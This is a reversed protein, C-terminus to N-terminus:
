CNQSWVFNGCMEARRRPRNVVIEYVKPEAAPQRCNRSLRQNRATEARGGTVQLGPVAVDQQCNQASEAGRGTAQLKQGAGPQGCNRSLGQNGAIGAGGLFADSKPGAGGAIAARGLHDVFEVRCKTAVCKPQLGTAHM